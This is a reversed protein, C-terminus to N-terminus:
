RGSGITTALFTRFAPQASAGAALLMAAGGCLGFVVEFNMASVDGAIGGIAMGLPTAAQALTLVLAMVRGRLEGPSALQVLTLVFINIAGTLVGLAFMVAIAAAASSVFALAAMGIPVLLFAALLVRSRRLGDLRLAGTLAMGGISGASLAALLFGFWAPGRGLTQQVYFPLLVFVPMFLFNLAAALLIFIRMGRASWVYRFGERTDDIYSRITARMDRSRVPPRDPLRIWAESGASILFSIGDLLFLVPAGLARYLVGGLAQGVITTGQSSMQVLANAGATREAPVLDPVAATIAPNFVAGVTGGFIGVAFLAPVVLGVDPQGGVLWALALIALGRLVDSVVIIRKRSHRDVFAGALPGFIVAPLTSAMLILGMLSGSGTAEMTWYMMAVFFAQNGVQSVLQGQWLLVFDRNLLRTTSGSRSTPKADGARRELLPPKSPVNM